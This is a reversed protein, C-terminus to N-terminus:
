SSSMSRRAVPPTPRRSEARIKRPQFGAGAPVVLPGPLTLGVHFAEPEDSKGVGPLRRQVVCQRAPAREGRRIGKRGDIGVDAHRPDRVRAEVRQRRHRVASGDHRRRHLEDVDGAQDLSRGLTLSEAVTEEAVDALDVRDDEDQTGKSVIVDVPGRVGEILERGELDFEDIGIEFGELLLDVLTALRGLAVLDSAPSTAAISAAIAASCVPM